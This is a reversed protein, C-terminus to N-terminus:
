KTQLTTAPRLSYIIRSVDAQSAVFTAGRKAGIWLEIKRDQADFAEIVVPATSGPDGEQFGRVTETQFSYLHGKFRSVSIDKMLLLVSNEAMEQRSWTLRLDGPTVNLIKSLLAYRSQLTAAGFVSTPAPGFDLSEQKVPPIEDPSEGPEFILIFTGASFYLIVESRFKKELTLETWPSELEYGFYTYTKGTSAEASVAPLPTPVRWLEPTKRANWKTYLLFSVPRGYVFLLVLTAVVCIIASSSWNRRSDL